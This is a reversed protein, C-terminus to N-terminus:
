VGRTVCDSRRSRQGSEGEFFIVQRSLHNGERWPTQPFHNGGAPNRPLAGAEVAKEM